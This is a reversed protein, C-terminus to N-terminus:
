KGEIVKKTVYGTVMATVASEVVISLLEDTDVVIKYEPEDQTSDGEVKHRVRPAGGHM